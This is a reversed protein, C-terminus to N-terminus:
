ASALEEALEWLDSNFATNQQISALERSRVARGNEGRGEMGGRVTNEQVVNFVRWLDSGRDEDRRAELLMAPDYSTASAGFRLAAAKRAFELARMDSLKINSWAAIKKELLDLGDTMQEAFRLAHTIADGGHAMEMRFSHDGVVLGNACIFRYMGAYMRLKTRGNHSNVLMIQPVQAGVSAPKNVHDEHRLVVRHIVHAPNRRRSKEQSADVPLYGVDALRELVKFTPVQSYRDTMRHHDSFAAPAISRLTAETMLM